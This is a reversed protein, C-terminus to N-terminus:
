LDNVHPLLSPDLRQAYGADVWQYAMWDSLVIADLGIDEGNSLAPAYRTAAAENSTVDESYVTDTDYRDDFATVTPHNGDSDTDIFHPWNSFQWTAAVPARDASPVSAAATGGGGGRCAALLGGTSVVGAAFASRRLLQARTLRSPGRGPILDDMTM